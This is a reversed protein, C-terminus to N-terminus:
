LRIRSGNRRVAFWQTPHVARDISAGGAEFLDLVEESKSSLFFLPRVLFVIPSREIGKELIRVGAKVREVQTIDQWSMERTPILRRFLRLSPAVQVGKDGITLKALPWSVYVNWGSRSPCRMAGLFARTQM